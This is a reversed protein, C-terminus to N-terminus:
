LSSYRNNLIIHPMFIASANNRNVQTSNVSSPLSATAIVANWFNGHAMSTNIAMTTGIYGSRQNSFMYNQGYYSLPPAYSSSKMLIGFVYDGGQSFVPAASWQSSVFSLWRPGNYVSTNNGGALGWSTSVSNLLSLNTANDTYIGIYASVTHATTATANINGTMNLLVTNATINGAFLNNEQNLRQFMLSNAFPVALTATAGRDMNQYYDM